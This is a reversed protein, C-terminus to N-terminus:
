RVVGEDWEIVFDWRGVGTAGMLVTNRVTFGENEAFVIPADHSSEGADWLVGYGSKAGSTALPVTAGIAASWDSLASIPNADATLTGPTIVAATAVRLCGATILSAPQAKILKNTTTVTSGADVATGNTGNVSYARALMLDCGTEQATGYATTLTFKALLRKLFMLHTASPWRLTLLAGAAAITTVAGTACALRYSGRVDYSGDLAARRPNKSNKMETV